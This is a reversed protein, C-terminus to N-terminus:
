EPPAPRVPKVQSHLWEVEQRAKNFFEFRAKATHNYNEWYDEGYDVLLQPCYIFSFLYFGIHILLILGFCNNPLMHRIDPPFNRIRVHMCYSPRAEEGANIDRVAVVFVYPWGYHLVEVFAM